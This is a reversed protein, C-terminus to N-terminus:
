ANTPRVYVQGNILLKLLDEREKSLQTIEKNNNIQHQRIEGLLQNFRQRSTLDPLCISINGIDIPSVNAQACGNALLLIQKVVSADDFLSYVWEPSGTKDVIKGVRQNLLLGASDVRCVRGVNGTLSILSDGIELKCYDPLKDPITDICETSSLDLNHDQVNRITVIRYRGTEVYSDSKFPFGSKIDCLAKISCDTWGEPIERKLKENWIMRGGSSKYPTGNGNPFDFQIFWYDYLQCALAELSDNIAVCSAIKEDFLSLTHAVIEQEHLPIQRINISKFASDLILNRLGSTKGEFNFFVGSNYVLQLFYFVYLPNWEPKVRFAQCFNSCIIHKKSDLLKKSIFVTRGTSQTPSGGSKEIIIDGERLERNKLSSMTIYRVPINEFRSNCIPVIDAGRICSVACPSDDTATEEGWDGPIFEAITDILRVSM